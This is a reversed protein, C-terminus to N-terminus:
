LALTFAAAMSNSLRLQAEVLPNYLRECKLKIGLDDVFSRHMGKFLTKELCALVDVRSKVLRQKSKIEGIREAEGSTEIFVRNGEIVPMLQTEAKDFTARDGM